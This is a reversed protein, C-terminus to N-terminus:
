RVLALFLIVIQQHHPRRIQGHFLLSLLLLSQIKGFHSRRFLDVLEQRMTYVIFIAHIKSGHSFLCNSLLYCATSCDLENFRILKTPPWQGDNHEIVLVVEYVVVVEVVDIADWENNNYLYFKECWFSIHKEQHQIVLGIDTLIIIIIRTYITTYITYLISDM